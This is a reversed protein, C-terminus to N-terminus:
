SVVLLRIASWLQINLLSRHIEFSSSSPSLCNPLVYLSRITTACRPVNESQQQGSPGKEAYSSLRQLSQQARSYLTEFHCSARTDRSVVQQLRRYFTDDRCALHYMTAELSNPVYCGGSIPTLNPSSYDVLRHKLEESTVTADFTALIDCLNDTRNEMDIASFPDRM